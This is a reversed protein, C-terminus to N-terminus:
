MRSIVPYSHQMFSDVRGHVLPSQSAAMIFRGDNVIGTDVACAVLIAWELCRGRAHPLRCVAWEPETRM